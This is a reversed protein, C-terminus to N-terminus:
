HYAVDEQAILGEEICVENMIKLLMDDFAKGGALDPLEARPLSKRFEGAAMLIAYEPRKTEFLSQLNVKAIWAQALSKLRGNKSAESEGLLTENGQPEKKFLVGRRVMAWRQAWDTILYKKNLFETTKREAEEYNEAEIMEMDSSPDNVRDKGKYGRASVFAVWKNKFADGMSM